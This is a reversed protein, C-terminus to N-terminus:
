RAREYYCDYYTQWTAGKDKSRDLVQHIRRDPLPTVTSRDLYSGGDAKSILGVFCLRDPAAETMDRTKVSGTDSIFLQKWHRISPDYYFWEKVESGDVDSWAMSVAAGKLLTEIHARAALEHKEGAFVRWDGLWFDLQHYVSDSLPLSEARVTVAGM